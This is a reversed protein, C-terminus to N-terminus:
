YKHNLGGDKPMRYGAPPVWGTENYPNDAIVADTTILLQAISTANELAARTVKKPDIVGMEVLNGFKGTATNYGTFYKFDVDDEILVDISELKELILEADLGANRIIQRAPERCAELLVSIAPRWEERAESKLAEVSAAARWLAFGGGVVYGEDIAAKVAFMADEVRDGIERLQLETSYGVTIVAVKGRLLGLRALTSERDGDSAATRIFDEYLRIREEVM